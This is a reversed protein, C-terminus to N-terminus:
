VRSSPIPTMIETATGDVELPGLIRSLTARATALVDDYTLIRLKPQINQLSQLKRRTEPTLSSSRGIVVLLRPNTSIGALGLEREVTDKNDEIYRVWDALQNIAHTLAECQQGDRRFLSRIPAEIEVLEYNGGAERFVFDSCRAGFPVKVWHADFTPCLLEPHATLFAQIPLELDQELMSEFEKLLLAYDRRAQENPLITPTRRATNARVLSALVDLEAWLPAVHADWASEPLLPYVELAIWGVPFRSRVSQTVIEPPEGEAVPPDVRRLQLKVDIEPTISCFPRPKSPPLGQEPTSGNLLIRMRFSAVVRETGEEQAMLDLSIPPQEAAALSDRMVVLGDSIKPLFTELPQDVALATVSSSPEGSEEYRCVLGDTCLFVYLNTADRLHPRSLGAMSVYKERLLQRAAKGHEVLAAAM